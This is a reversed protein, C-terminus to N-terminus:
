RAVYASVSREYALVTAPERLTPTSRVSSHLTQNYTAASHLPGVLSPAPLRQCIHEPRVQDDASGDPCEIAPRNGAPALRILQDIAPQIEFRGTAISPLQGVRDEAAHQIRSLQLIENALVM